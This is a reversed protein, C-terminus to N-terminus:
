VCCALKLGQEGFNGDFASLFLGLYHVDLIADM